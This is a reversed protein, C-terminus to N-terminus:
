KNRWTIRGRSLDYPSLEVTVRDGPLIRIYNMRLKGSIHALIEHGNELEVKFNTNPLADTVIGEVEIVDDKAM